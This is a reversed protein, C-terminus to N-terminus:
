GQDQALAVTEALVRAVTRVVQGQDHDPRGDEPKAPETEIATGGARSRLGPQDPNFSKRRGRRGREAQHPRSFDAVAGGGGKAAGAAAMSPQSTVSFIRSPWGVDRPATEPTTAPSTAMVGDQAFM